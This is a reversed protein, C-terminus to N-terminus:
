CLYKLRHIITSLSNKAIFFSISSAIKTKLRHRLSGGRHKLTCMKARRKERNDLSNKLTFLRFKTSIHTIALPKSPLFSYLINKKTQAISGHTNARGGEPLLPNIRLETISVCM